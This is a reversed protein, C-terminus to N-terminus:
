STNYGLLSNIVNVRLMLIQLRMYMVVKNKFLENDTLDKQNDKQVYEIVHRANLTISQATPNAFNIAILLTLIIFSKKM